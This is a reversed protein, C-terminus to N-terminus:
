EDQQPDESALEDLFDEATKVNVNATSAPKAMNYELITRIVALKDKAPLDAALMEISQEMAKRAIPNDPLAGEMDMNKIIRKATKQAEDIVLAWEHRTYGM